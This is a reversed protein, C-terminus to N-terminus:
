QVRNNAIEMTFRLGGRVELVRIEDADAGRVFDFLQATQQKLEFEGSQNDPRNRTADALKVSRAITPWPDLVFRRESPCLNIPRFL